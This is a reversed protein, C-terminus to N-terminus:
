AAAHEVQPDNAPPVSTPEEDPAADRGRQSAARMRTLEDIYAFLEADIQRHFDPQGALEDALAARLRGLLGVVSSRLPGAEAREAADVMAQATLDARCALLEGLRRGAAVYERVWDALTRKGVVPFSALRATYADLQQARSSARAAAAAYGDRVEGRRPMFIRRLEALVLREDAGLNPVKSYAEMILFLVSGWAVYTRKAEALVETLPRADVRSDALQALLERHRALRPEYSRGVGTARLTELRREFLEDLALRLDPITLKHLM